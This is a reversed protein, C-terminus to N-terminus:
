YYTFYTGTGINNNFIISFLVIYIRCSSYKNEDQTIETIEVEGISKVCEEVLKDVLRKRCKCKSYDLYKGINCSKDCKCECNCPNWIFGKDCIGKDILEKCECTCKGENWRPKNNCVRADLRCKYKCTEHWKIHRVENTRSM